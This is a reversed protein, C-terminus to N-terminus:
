ADEISRTGLDQYFRLLYGDPDAVIFQRNGSEVDKVRYWCEEVPLFLTIENQVLSKLLLDLNSVKIQVNLGRGFPYNHPQHGDDFTRGVGIQDIMLEAEGLKLYCFGEDTREYECQFGLIDCYFQKSKHWNSVAFEPVLANSM